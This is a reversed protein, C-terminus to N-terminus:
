TAEQKGLQALAKMADPCGMEARRVVYIAAEDDDKFLADPESVVKDGEWVEPHTVAQIEFLPPRGTEFLDWHIRNPDPMVAIDKIWPQNPM